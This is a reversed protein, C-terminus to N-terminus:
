PITQQARVEINRTIGIEDIFNLDHSIVLVTGRYHRITDTLISLSSLDLNNTPEDLIFLDPAYNSIMLCCLYLRMQEGGSLTLCSKNWTDKPFLARNLRTKIEHDLLNNSNYSEALELVTGARNVESYQQDLYIYSFNTKRVEGESPALEGTLLRVLTTKGTGNGGKIHIREGSRVELNLPTQWLLKNNAYKFNADVAAVLLKGNHLRADEFDIKLDGSIRQRQRLETLKHQGDAIITSHKENLKAGTNEGKEQLRGFAIRPIGSSSKEGRLVRRNQREKVEIAKKRALRLSSEESNIQEALAREEIEKQEKYFVYNGGYLRIDQESLEYTTDLLNLLTVDHSVTIITANCGNVFDYLKQRGSRDLHNTPEDLLIIDPKHLQLGALFVKTREGGSLLDVSSDLDIGALEWYDLASRCRSEIEWDDALLDYHIQESSGNYISHLADIKQAIGLAESVSQGAIGIQQPIYYPQSSCYVTGSSPMFEGALLKLLTSKGTGNNGIVSVKRDSSVFFSIHEFLSQQNFYHYSMDSVVISM